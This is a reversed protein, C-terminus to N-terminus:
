YWCSYWCSCCSSYWSLDALLDVLDDFSRNALQTSHTGCADRTEGLDVVEFLSEDHISTAYIIITTAVHASTSVEPFIWNRM